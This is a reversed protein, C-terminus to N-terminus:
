HAFPLRELHYTEFFEKKAIRYVESHDPPCALFDNEKVVMEEGWAAIFKFQAPWKMKELFARSIEIALIKGTPSYMSFGDEAERLFTYKEKFKEEPVIYMEGAETQNKVIFDGEKATNFTESGDSTITEIKEGATAKRALTPKHKKYLKGEAKLVPLMIELIEKQSFVKNVATTETSNEEMTNKKNSGNCAILGVQLIFLVPLIKMNVQPM